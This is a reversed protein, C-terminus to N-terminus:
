KHLEYLQTKIIDTIMPNDLQDLYSILNTFNFSSKYEEILKRTQNIVPDDKVYQFINDKDYLFLYYYLPNLNFIWELKVPTLYLLYSSESSSKIDHYVLYEMKNVLLTQEIKIYKSSYNKEVLAGKNIRLYYNLENKVLNASFARLYAELMYDWTDYTNETNIIVRPFRLHLKIWQFIDTEVKFGHTVDYEYIWRYRNVEFMIDFFNQIFRKIIVPNLRNNKAIIDILHIVDPKEILLKLNISAATIKKIYYYFEDNVNLQNSNYLSNFLQYDSHSMEKRTTFDNKLTRFKIRYSNTIETLELLNSKALVAKINNWIRWIFHVDGQKDHHRDIIDQIERQTTAKPFLTIVDPATNILCILAIVDTELHYPISYAYWLKNNIDRFFSLSAVDYIESLKALLNTKITIYEVHKYFDNYTSVYFTKLSNIINQNKNNTYRLELFGVSETPVNIVLLQLKADDMTLFYKPFIYSEKNVVAKVTERNIVKPVDINNLKLLYYYYIPSIIDSYKLSAFQGTFMNRNIITEDPHIIYFTLSNDELIYGDYGTYCRSQFETREQFHYDDHNERFYDELDVITEYFKYDTKGYYTYYQSADNILPMYMYNKRIIDIYSQPNGLISYLINEINESKNRKFENLVDIDNINNYSDVIPVDEIDSRILDLVLTQLNTDSIKYTTKNNIVQERTYLYYIEGPAVRGVRGRRQKSSTYSILMTELKSIGELPDYINVKAYGTDIIYRLQELTISAEAVNTVVLVARKYTGPPVCGTDRKDTADKCKTYLEPHSHMKEVNTREEESLAGYYGLCIIDPQTKANIESVAKTIDKVGSVFLLLGGSNTKNIVEITKTIGYQVFNKENIAAVEEKTPWHDIIPFTTTKEPVSIDIRRDVNARDLQYKEIYANVPSLRNDNIGRYYRRYIPEDDEMTASIIVLRLSNNMYVADRALTLIMDMNINHEHAEDVILIDYINNATITTVWKAPAGSATVVDTNKTMETM